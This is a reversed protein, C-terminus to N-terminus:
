KRAALTGAPTTAAGGFRYGVSLQADKKITWDRLVGNTPEYVAIAVTVNPLTTMYVHDAVKAPLASTAANWANGFHVPLFLGYRTTEENAAAMGVGLDLYDQASALGVNIGSQGLSTADWWTTAYEVPRGSPTRQFGASTGLQAQQTQVWSLLDSFTTPASQAFAASPPLIALGIAVLVKKLM